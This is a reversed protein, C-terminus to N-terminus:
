SQRWVEEGCWKCRTYVQLFISCCNEMAHNEELCRERMAVQVDSKSLLERLERAREEVKFSM